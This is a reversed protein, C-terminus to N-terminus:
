KYDNNLLIVFISIFEADTESPSQHDSSSKSIDAFLFVTLSGDNFKIRNNRWKIYM